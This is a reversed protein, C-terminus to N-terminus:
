GTAILTEANNNGVRAPSALPQTAYGGAIRLSAAGQKKLDAAFAAPTTYGLSSHPRRLAAPRFFLTVPGDGCGLMGATLCAM